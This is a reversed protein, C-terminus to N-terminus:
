KIFSANIIDNYAISFKMHRGGDKEFMEVEFNKDDPLTFKQMVFVLKVSKKGHIKVVHDPMKFIPQVEIEQIATRKFVKKDRIYFKIFDIDYNVYSKNEIKFSYFLVDEHIYIGELSFVIDFARMGLHKVQRSKELIKRSYIAMDGQNMGAEEFSIPAIGGNNSEMFFKRSVGSFDNGVLQYSLFSPEEAYVVYFSYFKGDKTIVTLNTEPFFMSEKSKVKLVNGVGYFKDAIIDKSGVDVSQIDAPFILSTTKQYTVELRISKLKQSDQFDIKSQGHGLTFFLVTLVAFSLGSFLKIIM